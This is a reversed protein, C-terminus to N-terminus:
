HTKTFAVAHPQPTIKKRERVVKTVYRFFKVSAILLLVFYHTYKTVCNCSYYIAAAAAAATGSAHTTNGDSYLAERKRYLGREKEM